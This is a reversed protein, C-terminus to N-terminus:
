DVAGTAVANYWYRYVDELSKEFPIQPEWGCVSRISEYSGYLEPVEPGRLRAPDREVAVAIGSIGILTDLVEQVARSKGSGLNFIGGNSSALLRYGRVIDRVDSFDRRADLNGVRLVAPARDHAIRALQLAFSATVFRKDQGPGIHNFPRAISCIINGTRSYMEVALEAMRKSLSYNNSPNVALTERIPLDAPNVGGYVEASSVYVLSKVGGSIVCQHVVHATGTVNIKLTREFDEQAEPVFSIGALHYVVDPRALDLARAVSNSDTIDVVLQQGAVARSGPFQVGSFVQDGQALLHAVLHGGVFGGAGLVLSRM